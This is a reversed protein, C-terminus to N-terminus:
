GEFREPNTTKDWEWFSPLKGQHDDKWRRLQDDRAATEDEFVKEAMKIARAMGMRRRKELTEEAARKWEALFDPDAIGEEALSAIFAKYAPLHTREHDKKKQAAENERRAAIKRGDESDLHIFYSEEWRRQNLWTTMMAVYEHKRLEEVWNRYRRAGEIVKAMDEGSEVLLDWTLRADARELKRGNSPRPYAEDFLAFSEHNKPDGKALAKSSGAPKRSRPPKPPNNNNEKTENEKRKNVSNVFNVNEGERDPEVPDSEGEKQHPSGGGSERGHGTQHVGNVSNVPNVGITSLEGELAAAAETREKQFKRYARQYLKQYKPNKEGNPLLREVREGTDPDVVSLGPKDKWDSSLAPQYKAFNVIRYTNRTGPTAVIRRGEEEISTSKEDPQQLAWLAKEVAEPRLNTFRCLYDNTAVIVGDTCEILMALFLLKTYAAEVHMTGTFFSRHLKIYEYPM